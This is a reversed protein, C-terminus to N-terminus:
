INKKIRQNLLKFHFCLKSKDLLKWNSLAELLLKARDKKGILYTMVSVCLKEIGVKNTIHILYTQRSITKIGRRDQFYCCYKIRLTDLIYKVENIIREDTNAISVRYGYRFKDGRKYRLIM